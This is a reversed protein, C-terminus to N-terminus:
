RRVVPRDKWGREIASSVNLDGETGWLSECVAGAFLYKPIVAKATKNPDVLQSVRVNMALSSLIYADEFSTRRARELFRVGQRTAEVLAEGITPLSVLIYVADETELTPWTPARGKLVDVEVVVSAAVECGTICVEGDGMAAHVDGIALLAGHQFAPLYLTAGAAIEQTDMNGGHRHATGTPHSGESPAVGIVGIMPKSPLCLEDFRVVGDEIPLIRTTHRLAEDGLVGMGPGTLAVGHDATDIRRIRVVLADGPEAGDVALPGTAPNVRDFDLESLVDQESHVQGGLADCTEFIVTERPVATAVPKMDASLAYVHQNSRISKM